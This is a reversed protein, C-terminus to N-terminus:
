LMINGDVEYNNQLLLLIEFTIFKITEFLYTDRKHSQLKM